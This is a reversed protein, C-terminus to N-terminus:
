KDKTKACADVWQVHLEGRTFDLVIEHTKLWNIGFLLETVTQHSGPIM